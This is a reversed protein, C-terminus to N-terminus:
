HAQATEQDISLGCHEVIAIPLPIIVGRAQEDALCVIRPVEMSRKPLHENTILADFAFVKKGNTMSLPFQRRRGFRYDEDRLIHALKKEDATDAILGVAGADVALSRITEESLTPDLSGVLLVPAIMGQRQRLGENFMSAYAVIPVGVKALRLYRQRLGNGGYGRRKASRLFSIARFPRFTVCLFLAAFYVRARSPHMAKFQADFQQSTVYHWYMQRVLAIRDSAFM